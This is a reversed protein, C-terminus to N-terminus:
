AEVECESQVLGSWGWRREAGETNETGPAQGSGTPANFGEKGKLQRSNVKGGGDGPGGVNGCGGTLEVGKNEEDQLIKRVFSVLGNFVLVIIDNSL